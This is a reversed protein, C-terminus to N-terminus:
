ASTQQVSARQKRRALLGIVVIAALLMMTVLLGGEPGFTGGTVADPGTEIVVVFSVEGLRSGSVELGFINGQVWNWVAHLGCVGWIAEEYLAYLATFLGFLFLNFLALPAIGPNLGHVLAFMVSSILIGLWVRYKVAVVPLIWGRFILEEAPGQVLWGLLMLGTGIFTSMGLFPGANLSFIGTWIGPVVVLVFMGAGLLFGRGFKFLIQDRELGLSVFPRQEYFRAWLGVLIYIGIFASILFLMFDFAQRPQLIEIIQALDGTAADLSLQEFSRQRVLVILAPIVTCIQSIILIVFTLPIILWIPTLRRATSAQRLLANDSNFM